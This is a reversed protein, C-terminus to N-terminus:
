DFVEESRDVFDLGEEKELVVRGGAGTSDRDSNMDEESDEEVKRMEDERSSIPSSTSEEGGKEGGRNEEQSTEGSFLGLRSLPNKSSGLVRGKYENPGNNRDQGMLCVPSEKTRRNETKLGVSKAGCRDM